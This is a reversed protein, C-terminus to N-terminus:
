RFRLCRLRGVIREAGDFRIDSLDSHRVGPNDLNRRDSTRCLGNFGLEFKDVDGSQDAPSGFSFTEAILKEGINPFHIGDDMDQAAKLIVVDLM